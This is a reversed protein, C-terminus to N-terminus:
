PGVVSTKPGKKIEFFGTDIKTNLKIHSYTTTQRDHSPTEFMQKLSVGRTPDIWITVHTFTKSVNPDKSVLDLKETKVPQGSDTLTEPGLDTINWSRALDKGSGGFGLTLFTEIQGQNSEPKIIRIQDNAPDFIRLMGDKYEYISKKGKTAPNLLAAGMQTTNGKRLFYVAGTDTTTEKVVAQYNDRSIDARANTFNKSATDMQALVASLQASPAQGHAAVAAPLLALSLASAFIPRLSKM